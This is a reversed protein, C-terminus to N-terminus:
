RLTTQDSHQAGEGSYTQEIEFYRM